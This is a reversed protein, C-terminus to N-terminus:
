ATGDGYLAAAQERQYATAAQLAKVLVVIVIVKLIIGRYLNTADIVAFIVERGLFLALATATIAVPSKEVLVGLVIFVAGLLMAAAHVVLLVRQSEQKFEQIEEATVQGQLGQQRIEKQIEADIQSTELFYMAAQGLVMLVGIAILIRRATRLHKERASQALSGLGASNPRGFRGLEPSEGAADFRPADSHDSM